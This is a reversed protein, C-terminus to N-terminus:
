EWYERQRKSFIAGKCSYVDETMVVHQIDYGNVFGPPLQFKVYYSISGCALEGYLQGVIVGILGSPDSGAIPNNGVYERTNWSGGDFGIPDRSIWTGNVLDYYRARVYM